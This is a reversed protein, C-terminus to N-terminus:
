GVSSGKEEVAFDTPTADGEIGWDRRGIKPHLLIQSGVSNM